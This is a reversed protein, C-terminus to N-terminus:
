ESNSPQLLQRVAEMGFPKHLIRNGTSKLFDGTKASATDGTIFVIKKALEPSFDNALQYLGQGGIGPMRLDTLIVDIENGKIMEWAEEGNRAVTVEHGDALLGRYLIDRVAPEDDVVLIRRNPMSNSVLDANSADASSEEPLIPLDIHFKAGEGPVSEVSM